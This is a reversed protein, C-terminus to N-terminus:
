STQLGGQGLVTVIDHGGPTESRADCILIEKGEGLPWAPAHKQRGTAYAPWSVLTDVQPPPFRSLGAKVLFPAPGNPGAGRFLQCRRFLPNACSAM